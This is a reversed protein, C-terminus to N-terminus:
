KEFEELCREKEKFFEHKDKDLRSKKEEAEKILKQLKKNETKYHSIQEDLYNSKDDEKDSFQFDTYLESKESMKTINALSSSTILKKSSICLKGEGRKLFSPKEISHMPSFSEIKKLKEIPQKAKTPNEITKSKKKLFEHKPQTEEPTIFEFDIAEDDKIIKQDVNDKISLFEQKKNTKLENLDHSSRFSSEKINYESEKTYSFDKDLTNKFSKVKQSNKREINEIKCPFDEPSYKKKTKMRPALYNEKIKGSNKKLEQELLQEFPIQSTKIPRDDDSKNKTSRISSVVFNQSTLEDNEFFSNTVEVSKNTTKDLDNSIEYDKKDESNPRSFSSNEKEIKTDKSYDIEDAENSLFVSEARLSKELNDEEAVVPIEPEAQQSKKYHDALMRLYNAQMAIYEPDVGSLYNIYSPDM